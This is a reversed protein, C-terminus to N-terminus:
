STMILYIALVIGAAALVGTLAIVLNPSWRYANREIGEGAAGSRQQSLPLVAVGCLTLAVGFVTPAGSFLPHPNTADLERLLLGFRAVIFGLGIAAGSTRAWALLTRENALHDRTRTPSPTEQKPENPAEM